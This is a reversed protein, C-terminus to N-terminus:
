LSMPSAPNRPRVCVWLFRLTERIVIEFESEESEGIFQIGETDDMRVTVPGTQSLAVYEPDVPDALEVKLFSYQWWTSGRFATGILILGSRFEVSDNPLPIFRVEHATIFPGSFLPILPRVIGTDRRQAPVPRSPILLTGTRFDMVIEGFLKTFVRGAVVCTSHIPDDFRVVTSSRGRERVELELEVSSPLRIFVRLPRSPDTLIIRGDRSVRIDASLASELDAKMSRPILLDPEGPSFAFSSSVPIGNILIIADVQWLFGSRGLTPLRIFDTRIYDEFVEGIQLGGNVIDRVRLLRGRMIESFRSVGVVGASECSKLYSPIIKGHIVFRFHTLERSPGLSIRDESFGDSHISYTSSRDPDFCNGVFGPCVSSAFLYSDPSLIDLSLRIRQPPTGLGVTVVIGSFASYTPSEFQITPQEIHVRVQPILWRYVWRFM